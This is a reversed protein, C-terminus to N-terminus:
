DNGRFVARFKGLGLGNFKGEDVGDAYFGALSDHVYTSFFHEVTPTLDPLHWSELLDVLKQEDEDMQLRAAQHMARFRHAASKPDFAPDLPNGFGLMRLRSLLREQTALLAERHKASAVTVPATVAWKGRRKFRWATYLSWHRRHMNEISALGTRAERLYANFAEVAPADPTLAKQYENRLQSWPVFAVGAKVAEQYMQAGPILAIMDSVTPGVGLAKPAYGGGVDSHAGPYLVEKVNAPYQQKIAASDLPFAGRVEHGAVYHVCQEVGPHIQLTNDAWSQHGRFTGGDLMNAAGVSAVTDFIGLFQVRLPVGAFLWTGDQEELVEFLWNVFVRAQAAGRSFGFVSLNIQTIRPKQDKLAAKLRDQWTRWITRRLMGPTSVSATNGVITKAQADTMLPADKVLSHPANVLRTFAWHIREEGGAAMAKGAFWDSNDGIEPFRTGVGPIYEAFYGKAPDHRHAHFLRVVNSHKREAPPPTEYDAVLNNGTGDFFIGLFVQGVCAPRNDAPLTCALASSRQLAERTSLRRLGATPFPSPSLTSM